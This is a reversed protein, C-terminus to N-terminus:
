KNFAAVNMKEDLDRLADKDAILAKFMTEFLIEGILGNAKLTEDIAANAEADELAESGSPMALFCIAILLLLLPTLRMTSLESKNKKKSQLM